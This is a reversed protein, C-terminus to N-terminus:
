DGRLAALLDRLEGDIDAEIDVTQAIQARLQRRYKERLRHVAVRVAVESMGLATAAQAYSAQTSDDLYGRLVEFQQQKGGATMEAALGTMAQQLVSLAWRRAFIREPTEQHSPELRYRSEGDDFNMELSVLQGGGRKQAKEARWHNAIFHTLSALLFSRFRGRAPDVTTLSNSELLKAFFAQTLDAADDPEHGKRRVFAYLPFWYRECLEALAARAVAPEQERLSM